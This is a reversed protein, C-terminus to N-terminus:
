CWSTVIVPFVSKRFTGILLLKNPLLAAVLYPYRLVAETWGKICSECTNHLQKWLHVSSLTLPEPNDPSKRRRAEEYLTRIFDPSNLTHFVAPSGGRQIWPSSIPTTQQVRSSWREGSYHPPNTAATFTDTCLFEWQTTCTHTQSNPSFDPGLEGSKVRLDHRYAVKTNSAEFSVSGM